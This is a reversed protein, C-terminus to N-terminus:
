FTKTDNSPRYYKRCPAQKSTHKRKPSLKANSGANRFPGDKKSDMINKNPGSIFLNGTKSTKPEKGTTASPEEHSPQEEDNVDVDGGSKLRSSRERGQIKTDEYSHM